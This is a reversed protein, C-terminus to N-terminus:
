CSGDPYWIGVNAIGLHGKQITSHGLDRASNRRQEFRDFQIVCECIHEFVKVGMRFHRWFYKEPFIPDDVFYNRMLKNNAEVEQEREFGFHHCCGRRRLPRM